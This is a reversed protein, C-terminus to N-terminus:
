IYGLTNEFIGSFVNFMKLCSLHYWLHLCMQVGVSLESFMIKWGELSLTKIM